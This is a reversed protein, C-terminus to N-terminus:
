RGLLSLAVAVGELVWLFPPHCSQSRKLIAYLEYQWGSFLEKQVQFTQPM